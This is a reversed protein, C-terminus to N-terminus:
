NKSSEYEQISQILVDIPLYFDEKFGIKKMFAQCAANPYEVELYDYKYKKGFTCLEKLLATGYGNKQHHFGIRAIVIYKKKEYVGFIYTGFRLYLDDGKGNMLAITVKEQPKKQFLEISTIFVNSDELEKLSFRKILKYIERQEAVDILM